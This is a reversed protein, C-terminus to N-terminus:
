DAFKDNLITFKKGPYKKEIYAVTNRRVMPSFKFPKVKFNLTRWEGEKDGEIQFLVSKRCWKKEQKETLTKDVLESILVEYTSPISKGHFEIPPLKAAEKKLIAIIEDRKKRDKAEVEIPGGFGYDHVKGVVKGDFRLTANFGTNEMGQFEKIGTVTIEM